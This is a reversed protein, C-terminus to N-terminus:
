REDEDEDKWVHERQPTKAGAIGPSTMQDDLKGAIVDEAARAIAGAIAGDLHGTDRNALAAAKKVIGLASSRQISGTAPSLFIRPAAFRRSVM